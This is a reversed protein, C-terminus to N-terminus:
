SIFKLLKKEIGGDETMDPNVTLLSNVSGHKKTAANRSYIYDGDAIM